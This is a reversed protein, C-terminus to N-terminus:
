VEGFKRVMDEELENTLQQLTLLNELREAIALQDEYCLNDLESSHMLKTYVKVDLELSTM